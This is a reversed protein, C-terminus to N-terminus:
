HTQASLSAMAPPPPAAASTDSFGAQMCAHPFPPVTRVQQRLFATIYLKMHAGYFMHGFEHLIYTEQFSHVPHEFSFFSFWHERRTRSILISASPSLLRTFQPM